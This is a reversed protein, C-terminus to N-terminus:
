FMAKDPNANLEQHYGIPTGIRVFAAMNVYHISTNPYPPCLQKSLSSPQPWPCIAEKCVLLMFNQESAHLKNQELKQM